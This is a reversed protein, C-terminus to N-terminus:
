RVNGKCTSKRPLVAELPMTWETPRTGVGYASTEDEMGCGARQQYADLVGYSYAGWTDM